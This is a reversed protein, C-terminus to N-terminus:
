RRAVLLIIFATFISLYCIFRIGHPDNSIYDISYIHVISSVTLVVSCIIITLEDFNFIWSITFPEIGLSIWNFLIIEVNSRGIIVEYSAIWAIIASFSICITTILSSGKFGIIRGRIGVIISGLFPLIIIVIYM